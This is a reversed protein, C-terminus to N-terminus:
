APLLVTNRYSGHEFMKRVGYQRATFWAVVADHTTPTTEIMVAPRSAEIVSAAGTLLHVEGGDVDIKLFDVPERVLEALTRRPVKAGAFTVEGGSTGSVFACQVDVAPKPEPLNYFLTREIFPLNAPDADILTIRDPRFTKLFFASHNGLLVGVEAISRIKEPPLLSGLYQLEEWETLMGVSHFASSEVAAANHTSLDFAYRHGGAEFSARGTGTMLLRALARFNDYNAPTAITKVASLALYADRYEKRTLHAFGLLRYGDALDPVLEILRCAGDRARTAAPIRQDAIWALQAYTLLLEVDETTRQVPGAMAQDLRSLVEPGKAGTRILRLLEARGTATTAGAQDVAALAQAVTIATTIAM